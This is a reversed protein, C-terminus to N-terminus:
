KTSFASFIIACFLALVSDSLVTKSSFIKNVQSSSSLLIVSEEIEQSFLSNITSSKVHSSSFDSISIARSVKFSSM